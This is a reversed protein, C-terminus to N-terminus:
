PSNGGWWKEVLEEPHAFGAAELVEIWQDVTSALTVEVLTGRAACIRHLGAISQREAIVTLPERVVVGDAGREVLELEVSM